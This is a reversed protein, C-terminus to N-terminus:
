CEYKVVHGAEVLQQNISKDAGPLWIEALYRRYKERGDRHTTVLVEKGLVLNALFNRSAIAVGKTAGKLEPANIGYLRLKQSQLYVDLGLALNITVTDGDHVATVIGKYTYLTLTPPM